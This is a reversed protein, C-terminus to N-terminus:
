EEAAPKATLRFSIGRGNAKPSEHLIYGFRDAIKQCTARAAISPWGCGDALEKGTAGEPRSCLDVIKQQSATMERARKTETPATGRVANDGNLRRLFTALYRPQDPKMLETIFANVLPTIGPDVQIPVAAERDPPDSKSEDKSAGGDERPLSTGDATDAAESPPPAEAVADGDPLVVDALQTAEPLTLGREEMLAATRRVGNARTDFRALPKEALANYSALLDAYPLTDLM